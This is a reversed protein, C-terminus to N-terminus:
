IVPICVNQMSGFSGIFFPNIKLYNIKVELRLRKVSKLYLMLFMFLLNREKVPEYLLPNEM